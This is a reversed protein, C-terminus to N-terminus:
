AAEREEIVSRLRGVAWRADHRISGQFLLMDDRVRQVEAPSLGRAARLLVARSGADTHRMDALLRLVMFGTETLEFDGPNSGSARTRSNPISVLDLDLDRDRDPASLTCDSHTGPASLFHENALTRSDFDAQKEDPNPRTKNLNQNPKPGSENSKRWALLWGRERLGDLGVPRQARITTRVWKADNPIKNGIRNALMWIKVLHIQQVESLRAFEYDELLRDYLKIWPLHKSATYQLDEYSKVRLFAPTRM